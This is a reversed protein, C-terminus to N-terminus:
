VEDDVAGAAARDLAPDHQHLALADRRDATLRLDGDGLPGLDEVAARLRQQGAQDVRVGVRGDDRPQSVLDALEPLRRRGM